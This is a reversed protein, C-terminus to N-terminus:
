LEFYSVIFGEVSSKSPTSNNDLITENFATVAFQREIFQPGLQHREVGLIPRCFLDQIPWENSLTAWLKTYLDDPACFLEQVPGTTFIWWLLRDLETPLIANVGFAYEPKSDLGIKHLVIHAHKFAAHRFHTKRNVDERHDEFMALLRRSPGQRHRSLIEFPKVSIQTYARALEVNELKTSQVWGHSELVGCVDDIEYAKTTLGYFIDAMGAALEILAQTQEGHQRETFSIHAELDRRRM